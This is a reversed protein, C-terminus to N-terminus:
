SRSTRKLYGWEESRGSGSIMVSSQESVTLVALDVENGM